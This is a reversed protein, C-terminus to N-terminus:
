VESDARELHSLPFAGLRALPGRRAAANARRRLRGSKGSERMRLCLSPLTGSAARWSTAPSRGLTWGLDFADAPRADRLARRPRLHLTLPDELAILHTRVVFHGGTNPIFASRMTGRRLRLWSDRGHSSLAV